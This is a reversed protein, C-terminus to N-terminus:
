PMDYGKVEGDHRKKQQSETRGANQYDKKGHLAKDNRRLFLPQVCTQTYDKGHAPIENDTKNRRMQPM